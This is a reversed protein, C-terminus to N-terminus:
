RFRFRLKIDGSANGERDSDAVVSFHRGFLFETRVVTGRRQRNEPLEWPKVRGGSGESVLTPALRLLLGDAPEARPWDSTYEAFVRQAVTGAAAGGSVTGTGQGFALEALLEEQPRQPESTLIVNPRELLGDIVITISGSGRGVRGEFHVTPLNGPERPVVVRAGDIRVFIGAPLKIEGGHLRVVGSLAPRAATGRITAAVDAMAGAVSNELRVEGTSMVRVDLEVDEGGAIGPLQMGGAPHTDIRVGTVADQFGRAKGGGGGLSGLEEHVFVLPVGVFGWLRGDEFSLSPSVRVRSLRRDVLLLDEGELHLTLPHKEAGADWRGRIRFEGGGVTGRLAVLEAGGPGATVVGRIGRVEGLPEIRRYAPCEVEARASWKPSRVTGTVVATATLRGEPLWARAEESLFRAAPTFDSCELRGRIEMTGDAGPLPVTGDVDLTGYPTAAAPVSFRVAGETTRLPVELSLPPLDETTVGVLGLTGTVEPKETTGTLRAELTLGGRVPHDGLFQLVLPHRLDRLVFRARLDHRDGTTGTLILRDGEERGWSVRGSVTGDKRDVTVRGELPDLGVDAVRIARVAVDAALREEKLVLAGELTARVERWRVEVPSLRVSEPSFWGELRGHRVEDEKWRVTGEEVGVSWGDGAPELTVVPELSLGAAEAKLSAEVRRNVLSATGGISLPALEGPVGLSAFRGRASFSGEVDGYGRWLGEASVEDGEAGARLTFRFAQEGASELEAELAVAPAFRTGRVVAETVDLRGVGYDFSAELSSWAEGEFEGAGATVRGRAEVGGRGWSGRGEIGVGTVRAPPAEIWDLYPAADEVSSRVTAGIEPGDVWRFVGEGEVRDPGRRATATWEVKALTGGESRLVAEDVVLGGLDAKRTRAVVDSVSWADVPGALPGEARGTVHVDAGDLAVTGDADLVARGAGLDIEAHIRGQPAELDGEMRRVRGGRDEEVTGNWALEHGAIETEVRLDRPGRRIRVYPVPGETATAELVIVKGLTAKAEVTGLEEIRGKLRASGPSLEAEDIRVIRGDATAIRASTVRIRGPPRFMRLAAEAERASEHAPTSDNGAPALVVSPADVDVALDGSGLFGYSVSVRRVSAERFAAGERPRLVVDEARLGFLLSGSMPGIEVDADAEDRVVRAIESRLLGELLPWRFLYLLGAIAALAAFGVTTRRLIKRTAPRTM